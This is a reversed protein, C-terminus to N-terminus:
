PRRRRPWVVIATAAYNWLMGVLIGTLGSWLWNGWDVYIYSAVGVNAAAGISCALMFKVLGSVWAWGNLRQDRYTLENNLGYNFIMSVGVAVAQARVFFDPFLAMAISLVVLHVCVGAGGIMGFSVLQVPVYQGVTKDVLLMLFDWAVRNDLKSEGVTRQGFEFPIEIIKLPKPSSVILDVLIKFGMNSLNYVAGELVERKLMFFGSMPDSVSLGLVRQSLWTAFWSAQQRDAQWDGVSGGEIYRSGVSLDYGEQVLAQLMDPLKSEDHQLDADMVAIYRAHTSLMGEVCASSLGRRGVRRICRINPHTQALLQIQQTTGDPSDDDVFIVEWSLGSLVVELKQVLTAINGVENFTPIVVALTLENASISLNNTIFNVM